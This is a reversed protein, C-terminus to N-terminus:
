FKYFLNLKAATGYDATLRTSSNMTTGGLTGLSIYPKVEAGIYLNDLLNYNIGFFYGFSSSTYLDYNTPAFRGSVRLGVEPGYSLWVNKTLSKRSELGVTMGVSAIGTEVASVYSLSAIQGSLRWYKNDLRRKKIAFNFKTNLDYTVGIEYKSSSLQPSNVSHQAYIESTFFLFFTVFLSLQIFKM